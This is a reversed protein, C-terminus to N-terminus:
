FGVGLEAPVAHQVLLAVCSPQNYRQAWQYPTEGHHDAITFDAGNALLLAVIESFGHRAAIHLASEGRVSPSGAYMDTPGETTKVNVDAGAAILCEAIETSGQLAAYHLAVEGSASQHNVNAGAGLLREVIPLYGGWVAMMLPAGDQSACDVNAGSQLLRDVIEMHGAAAALHLASTGRDYFSGDSSTLAIAPDNQLAAQVTAVDGQFAADLFRRTIIM